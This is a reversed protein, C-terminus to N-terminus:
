IVGLTGAQERRSPDHFITQIVAGAADCVEIMARQAGARHRAYSVAFEVEGYWMAGSLAESELTFGDCEHRPRITFKM